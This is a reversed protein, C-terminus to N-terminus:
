IKNTCPYINSFSVNLMGVDGGGGYVFGDGLVGYGYALFVYGFRGVMVLELKM